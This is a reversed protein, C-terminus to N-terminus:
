RWATVAAPRPHMAASSDSRKRAASAPWRAAASYDDKVAAIQREVVAMQATEHEFIHRDILIRERQVDYSMRGILRVSAMANDVIADAAGQAASWQFYGLILSVVLLAAIGGFGVRLLMRTRREDKWQQM